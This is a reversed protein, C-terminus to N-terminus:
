VKAVEGKEASLRAAMILEVVRRGENGSILPEKSTKICEFFHRLEAKYGDERDVEQDSLLDIWKKERGDYLSLSSKGNFDWLITGESGVIRCSRNLAKDVMDLHISGLAGCDFKVIIEAIDEVDVELDSVKATLAQVQSIGGVLWCLYDLEHSLELLVGGGLEKRASVTHRYDQKPRWDSLHQGVSARISLIRGIRGQDLLEKIMKIPKSFRLVYGVMLVLSRQKCEGLLEDLGQSSVALPKEIFLHSNARAFLLATDCHMAAPNAVFVADPKWALAEPKSFFVDEVLPELGGLEAKKSNQRWVAVQINNDVAKINKIHRRGISGLGVILIKM